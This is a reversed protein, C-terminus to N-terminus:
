HLDRRYYDRERLRKSAEVANIAPDMLYGQLVDCGFRCLTNRQEDTEVGEAIVELDANQALTIISSVLAASKREEGMAVIFSRDIKLSDLQIANLYSLASYGTGFDDLAFTVGRKRILNINYSALEMDEILSRELIEFELVDGPMQFEDLLTEVMNPFDDACLQESAVNISVRLGELLGAHYWISVQSLTTKLLYQALEGQIGMDDAVDLIDLPSVGDVATDQWRMLAELGALELSEAYVKPQYFVSIGTESLARPLHSRLRHRVSLRQHILSASAEDRGRHRLHFSDIYQYLENASGFRGVHEIWCCSIGGEQNKDINDNDLVRTMTSYLEDSDLEAEYFYLISIEREDSRAVFYNHEEGLPSFDLPLALLAEHSKALVSQDARRPPHLRVSMVACHQQRYDDRLVEEVTVFLGDKNAFGTQADLLAMSKYVQRDRRLLPAMTLEIEVLRAYAQLQQEQAINFHRPKDDILCLTGLPLGEQSYIPIGAYFRVYPEGRVLPHEIFRPDVLTDEVILARNELITHACFALDRTMERVNLGVCSKFWQRDEDVLSVMVMPTDFASAVMRTIADFRGEQPTDLIGLDRLAKLRAVEKPHFPAVVAGKRQQYGEMFEAM